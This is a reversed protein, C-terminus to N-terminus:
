SLLPIRNVFISYNDTMQQTKKRRQQRAEPTFCGKKKEEKKKKMRVANADIRKPRWVGNLTNLTLVCATLCRCVFFFHLNLYTFSLLCDKKMHRSQLSACVYDDSFLFLLTSQSKKKKHPAIFVHPFDTSFVTFQFLVHSDVSAAPDLTRKWHNRTRLQPSRSNHLLLAAEGLM